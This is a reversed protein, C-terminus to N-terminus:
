QRISLIVAIRIILVSRNERLSFQIEERGIQVYSKDNRVVVTYGRRKVMKIFADLIIMARSIQEKSVKVQLMGRSTMVLGDIEFRDRSNLYKKAEAVLPDPNNSRILPALERTSEATPIRVKKITKLRVLDIEESGDFQPLVPSTVKRGLHVLTWYGSSPLPIDKEKCTNRLMHYSVQLEESIKTLPTKWALEYLEQRTIETKM